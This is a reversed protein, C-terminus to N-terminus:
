SGAWCLTLKPAPPGPSTTWPQQAGRGGSGQGLHRQQIEPGAAGEALAERVVVNLYPSTSLSAPATWCLPYLSFLLAQTKDSIRGSATIESLDQGGGGM